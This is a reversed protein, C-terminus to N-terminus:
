SKELFAQQLQRLEGALQAKEQELAWKESVLLRNQVKTEDLESKLMSLQENLVAIETQTQWHLSTETKQALLLKVQHLESTLKDRSQLHVDSQLLAAEHRQQLAAFAKDLEIKDHKLVNNQQELQRITNELRRREEEHRLTDTQWQEAMATRYHELNTQAQQNNAIYNPLVPKKKKLSGRWDRFGPM